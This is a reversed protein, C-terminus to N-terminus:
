PELLPKGPRAARYLDDGWLLRALAEEIQDASYGPHRARIGSRMVVRTFRCLNAGEEVRQSPSLRLTRERLVRTAEDSTDDM